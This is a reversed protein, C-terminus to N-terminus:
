VFRSLGGPTVRKLSCRRVNCGISSFGTGFDDLMTFFGAQKLEALKTRVLEPHAVVVGETLEVALRNPEVGAAEVIGVFSLVFTPVRFQVPSVNISVSLEPWRALDACVKRLVILGIEEILGIAEAIPVLTGPPVKGLEKSTWRLLAEAGVLKRSRGDVIPQYHVEFEHPYIGRRLVKEIVRKKATDPELQPQWGVPTGSSISKAYYMAMDSRRILELAGVMDGGSVAFGVASSVHFEHGDISFVRDTEAIIQHSLSETSENVGPGVVIFNFEDGGVRALWITDSALAALRQALQRLVDDGVAHGASENIIKFNNLDIYVMGLEGKAVAQQVPSSALWETFRQRNPLQTLFDTRAARSLEDAAGRARRVIAMGIIVFVALAGGVPVGSALLLQGGPDRPTWNLNALTRGDLGKISLSAMQEGQTASLTLDDILFAKGINTVREPSLQFGLINVPLDAANLGETNAPTVRASALLYFGDGVKFVGSKAIVQDTAVDALLETMTDVVSRDLINPDPVETSGSLWGYRVSGDPQVIQILDITGNQVAGTGINLYVWADDQATVKDFAEQWHSYDTTISKLQGELAVIAGSIMTRSNAAELESHKKVMFVLAGSVTVVTVAASVV